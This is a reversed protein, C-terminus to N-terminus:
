LPQLHDHDKEDLMSLGLRNAFHSRVAADYFPRGDYTIDMGLGQMHKSQPHGGVKANHEPTRFWSTVSGRMMSAYFLARAAFDTPTM